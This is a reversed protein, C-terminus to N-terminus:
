NLANNYKQNFKEISIREKHERQARLEEALSRKPFAGSKNYDFIQSNGITNNDKMMSSWASEEDGRKSSNQTQNNRIEM